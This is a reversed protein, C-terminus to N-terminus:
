PTSAADRATALLHQYRQAADPRGWAQYMQALARAAGQTRWDSLGFTDRFANFSNQIPPEAEAFRGERAWCLGLIGRAADQAEAPSAFPAEGLGLGGDLVAEVGEAVGEAQGVPARLASGAREGLHILGPAARVRGLAVLM